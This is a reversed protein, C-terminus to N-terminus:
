VRPLQAALLKVLGDPNDVHIWHGGALRTVTVEEGRGEIGELRAVADASLISDHEAQVFRIDAGQPPHDVVPWLDARAFDGSLEQLGPTDLQWTWHDRTRILNMAMWRATPEDFGGSRVWAVAENRSVFKEPSRAVIDLMSSSSGERSSPAPTSDIIWTQVPPPRFASTAVLAVKGGFSHGLLAVPKDQQLLQDHLRLVDGACATLNNPGPVSLGRSDGHLRLDVLITRWDPRLDVLRRALSTWNRGSGLFGHLVYLTGSQRISGSENALVSHALTNM